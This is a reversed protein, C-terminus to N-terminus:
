SPLQLIIKFIALSLGSAIKVNTDTVDLRVSLAAIKLRACMSRVFTSNADFPIRWAHRITAVNHAAFNKGQIFITRRKRLPFCGRWSARAMKISWRM